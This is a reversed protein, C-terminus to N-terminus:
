LYDRILKSSAATYLIMRQSHGMRKFGYTVRYHDLLVTKADLAILGDHYLEFSLQAAFALLSGAIGRRTKSQGVDNPNSELTAIRIYKDQECRELAILGLVRNPDSPVILKFVETVKLQGIWDFRWGPGLTRLDSMVVPLVITESREGTNVDEIM